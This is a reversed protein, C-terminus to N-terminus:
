QKIYPSTDLVNAHKAMMRNFGVNVGHMSLRNVNFQLFLKFAQYLLVLSLYCFHVKKVSKYEFISTNMAPNDTVTM